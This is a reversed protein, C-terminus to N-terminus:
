TLNQRVQVLFRRLLLKEELTFDALIRHEIVNWIDTVPEQLARGADTLYVRYIRADKADRCRHLLGCKEMRNLMKTVTPPEVEMREVLESQTLGDEKWLYMLLIEQGLYLGLDALAASVVNRHAKAVQVMLCGITEQMPKSSM